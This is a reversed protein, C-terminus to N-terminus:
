GNVRDNAIRTLM